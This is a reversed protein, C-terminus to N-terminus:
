RATLTDTVTGLTRSQALSVDVVESMIGTVRRSSAVIDEMTAGASQVLGAGEEIQQVSTQILGKIEKAASASHQALNRVEAAVVAFGKGHSGARAAEVAANLALINTQFAVGDMVGIIDAIRRSSETIAGMTRVVDHVTRGGSEAVNAAELALTHAQSARDANAALGQVAERLQEAALVRGTIDSAFKVVKCPRGEGDLIPNYSADIWVNRGGKGVRLYQGTDHVGQGLRRWFERYAASQREDPLVFMSHHRGVVENEDYGMADLFLRNARIITGDLEFEIIAQVKSIAALQGAADDIRHQEATAESAIEVIRAPRGHRDCIPICSARLWICTGDAAVRRYCGTQPIGQALDEWFQRYAPTASEAAGALMSHHHGAIDEIEYGFASLYNANARLIQGDMDYEIVALAQHFAELEGEPGGEHRSAGRLKGTIFGLM